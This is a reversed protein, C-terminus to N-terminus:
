YIRSKDKRSNELNKDLELANWGVAIENQM